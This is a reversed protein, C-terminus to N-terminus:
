RGEGVTSEPGLREGLGGGWAHKGTDRKESPQSQLLGAAEGFLVHGYGPGLSGESLM